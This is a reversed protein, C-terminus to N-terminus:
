LVWIAMQRVKISNKSIVSELDMGFQRLIVSCGNRWSSLPFHLFGYPNFGAGTSVLRLFVFKQCYLYYHSQCCGSKKKKKIKEWYLTPPRPVFASLSSCVRFVVLPNLSCHQLSSFINFHSSQILVIFHTTAYSLSSSPPITHKDTFPPSLKTRKSASATPESEQRFIYKTLIHYTQWGCAATSFLSAFQQHCILPITCISLARLDSPVHM